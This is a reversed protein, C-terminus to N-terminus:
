LFVTMENRHNLDTVIPYCDDDFATQPGEDTFAPHFELPSLNFDQGNFPHRPKLFQKSYTIKMRQGKHVLIHRQYKFHM